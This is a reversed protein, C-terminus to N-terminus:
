KQDNCVEKILDIEPSITFNCPPDIDSKSNIIKLSKPIKEKDVFTVNTHQSLFERSAPLDSVILPIGYSAMECAMVGQTDQRSFMVAGHHQDLIDPIEEPKLYFNYIKLNTPPPFYNFFEGEGYISFTYQPNKIALKRYLDVSYHSKDFPRICVFDAIM